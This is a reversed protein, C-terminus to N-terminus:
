EGKLHDKLLGIGRRVAESDDVNEQKTYKDLIERLSENIRASVRLKKPDETPRGMKPSM